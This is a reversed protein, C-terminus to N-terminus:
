GPRDLELRPVRRRGLARDARHQGADRPPVAIINDHYYVGSTISGREILADVDDQFLVPRTMLEEAVRVIAPWNADILNHADDQLTNWLADLDKGELEYTVGAELAGFQRCICLSETMEEADAFDSDWQGTREAKRASISFKKMHAFPGALKVKIMREYYLIM